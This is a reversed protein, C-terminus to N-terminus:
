FGRWALAVVQVVTWLLGFILAFIFLVMVGCGVDEWDIM